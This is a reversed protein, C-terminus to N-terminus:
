AELKTGAFGVRGILDVLLDSTQSEGEPLRRAPQSARSLWSVDTDNTFGTAGHLQHAGRMVIASAELADVRLALASTLAEDDDASERIKWLTYKALEELGSIAVSLDALHFSVSQFKRLPRGFQEREGTYRVTDDFANKTLGLLWWAHLTALLAAHRPHREDLPTVEVESVFAGLRTGFLGGRTGTVTYARGTLDLANWHLPLDAHEAVRHEAAIPVLTTAEADGFRALRQAIPYPLAFYGAVECVAASAELEDGDSLPDLDWIGAAAFVDAVPSRTSPDASARRVVDVGGASEFQDRLVSALGTAEDSLQIIM